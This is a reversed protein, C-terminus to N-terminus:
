AKTFWGQPQSKAEGCGPIHGESSPHGVGGDKPRNCLGVKKKSNTLPTPGPKQLRSVASGLERSTVLVKLSVLNEM